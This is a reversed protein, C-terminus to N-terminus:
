ASGSAFALGGSQITDQLTWLANTADAIRAELDDALTATQTREIEALVDAREKKLRALAAEAEPFLDVSVMMLRDMGMEIKRKLGDARKQLGRLRGESKDAEEQARVENRLKQLNNPDLFQEQLKCILLRL